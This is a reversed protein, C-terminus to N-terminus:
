TSFMFCWLKGDKHSLTMNFNGVKWHKEERTMKKKTNIIIKAWRISIFWTFVVNKSHDNLLCLSVNTIIQNKMKIEEICWKCKFGETMWGILYYLSFFKYQIVMIILCCSFWNNWNWGMSKKGNWNCEMFCIKKLTQKYQM